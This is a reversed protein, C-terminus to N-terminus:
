RQPGARTVGHAREHRALVACPVTRGSSAYCAGYPSRSHGLYSVGIVAALLLWGLMTAIGAVRQPWSARPVITPPAAFLTIM